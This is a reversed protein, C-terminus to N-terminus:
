GVVRLAAGTTIRTLAEGPVPAPQRQLLPRAEIEVVGGSWITRIRRRFKSACWEGTAAIEGSPL